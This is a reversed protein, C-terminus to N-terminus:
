IGTDVHRGTPIPNHANRQRNLSAISSELDIANYLIDIRWVMDRMCGVERIQVVARTWRCMRYRQHFDKVLYDFIVQSTNRQSGRREPLKPRANWPKSISDLCPNM